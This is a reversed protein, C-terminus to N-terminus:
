GGDEARDLAQNLADPPDAIQAESLVVLVSGRDDTITVTIRYTGDEDYAHTGSVQFSDESTGAVEGNTPRTGDGWDVTAAIRRGRANSVLAVQGNAPVPTLLITGERGRVIAGTGTM